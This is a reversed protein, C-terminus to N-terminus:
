AADCLRCFCVTFGAAQVKNLSKELVETIGQSHKAANRSERSYNYNRQRQANACISGNEAGDVCYHQTHQGYFLRLLEHHQFPVCALPRLLVYLVQFAATKAILM